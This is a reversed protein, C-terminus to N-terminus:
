RKIYQQIKNTINKLPDKCSPEHLINTQLSGKKFCKKSNSLLIISADIYLEPINGERGSSNTYFHHSKERFLKNSNAQSAM